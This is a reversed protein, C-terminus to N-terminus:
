NKIVPYLARLSAESFVMYVGRQGWQIRLLEMERQYGSGVTRSLVLVENEGQQNFAELLKLCNPPLRLKWNKQFKATIVLLISSWTCPFCSSWAGNVISIAGGVGVHQIKFRHIRDISSITGYIIPWVILVYVLEYIAEWPTTEWISSEM